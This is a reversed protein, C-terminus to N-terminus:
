TNSILKESHTYGASSLQSLLRNATIFHSIILLDSSRPLRARVQFRYKKIDSSRGFPGFGLQVSLQHKSWFSKSFSCLVSQFVCITISWSELQSSFCKISKECLRIFESPVAPTFFGEQFRFKTQLFVQFFDSNQLDSRVLYSM